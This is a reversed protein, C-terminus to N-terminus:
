RVKRIEVKTVGAERWAHVHHWATDGNAQHVAPQWVVAMGLDGIMTKLAEYERMWAETQTM